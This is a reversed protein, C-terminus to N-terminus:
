AEKRTKYILFAITMVLLGMFVFVSNIIWDGGVATTPVGPTTTAVQAFASTSISLLSLPIAWRILNKTKTIM